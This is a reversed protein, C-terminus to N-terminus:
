WLVWCRDGVDGSCGVAIGRLSLAPASSLAADCLSNSGFDPVFQLLPDPPRVARERRVIWCSELSTLPEM